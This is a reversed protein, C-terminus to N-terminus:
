VKLKGAMSKQLIKGNFVSNLAVGGALCLDTLGTREKVASVIRLMVLETVAQISSAIDMYFQDIM